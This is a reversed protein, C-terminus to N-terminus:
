ETPTIGIALSPLAFDSNKVDGNRPSLSGSSTPSGETVFVCRLDIPKSTIIAVTRVSIATQFKGSVALVSVASESYSHLVIVRGQFFLSPTCEFVM